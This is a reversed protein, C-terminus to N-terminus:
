KNELYRYGFSAVFGRDLGVSKTRQAYIGFMGLGGNINTLDPADIRMSFEDKFTQGAAYYQAINKDMIKLTFIMNKVGYNNKDPDGESIKNMVYKINEISFYVLNQRTIEPYRVQEADGSGITKVPVEMKMPVDAGNIRKTYVLELKSLYYYKEVSNKTSFFDWQFTESTANAKDPIVMPYKEFLIDGSPITQTNSSLTTGDALSVQVSIPMPLDFLVTSKLNLKDNYYFRFPTNYRSEDIREVSSDSFLYSNSKYDIRIVAGEVFPDAKNDNPNSTNVDYVRSLYATQFLTDQNIFCYFVTQNKMEAKPNVSDQCAICCVFLAAASILVAGKM